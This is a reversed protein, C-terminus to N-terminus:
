WAPGCRPCSQTTVSDLEQASDLRRQSPWEAVWNAFDAAFRALVGDRSGTSELAEAESKLFACLEDAVPDSSGCACAGFLM